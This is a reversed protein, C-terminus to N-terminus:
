AGLAGGGPRRAPLPAALSGMRNRWSRCPRSQESLLGGM